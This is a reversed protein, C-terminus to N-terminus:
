FNAGVGMLLAWFGALAQPSALFSAEAELAGDAFRPSFSVLRAGDLPAQAVLEVPQLLREFGARLAAPAPGIRGEPRFKLGEPAVVYNARVSFPTKQIEPASFPTKRIEPGQQAAHWIEGSAAFARGDVSLADVRVGQVHLAGGVQQALARAFIRSLHTKAEPARARGDVRLHGEPGPSPRLWLQMPTPQGFIKPSFPLPEGQIPGAQGLAGMLAGLDQAQAPTQGALPLSLALPAALVAMKLSTLRM